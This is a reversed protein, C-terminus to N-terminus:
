VFYMQKESYIKVKVVLTICLCQLFNLFHLNMSPFLILIVQITVAQYYSNNINTQTWRIIDMYMCKILYM